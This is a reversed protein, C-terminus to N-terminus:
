NKVKDEVSINSLTKKIRLATLRAVPNPYWCEKMVKAMSHLVESAHWRNPINPRMKDICVVKKMEEISPDPQVVDYYPLQYEDYIMGMNCRRAIEWLILGFAYVDARKYADFHQANMTEDLVEPAMYRKTGVRHTSPIDVSDNKEVHRVALGLDGIACTLNTKVLINKSKLDRHAIAPKGRTGVIDMHLHALGTAISLAMSLMTKTDVTHSTLYDFLSGNEHYDTVLWLQTWTGNDKNDAAIFGLINEHRLMVTQYIEAERFWSCEERSSFIKVAVNEGRWRGRWVEGFRGKGIVHCLQIQRAISRQVLLPLGALFCSCMSLLSIRTLYQFLYLYIDQKLLGSGSGSTTMEIIDQLTNGNLIPDYVSDEPAFPRARSGQKRKQWYCWSLFVSLCAALTAGFIIAVLVWTNISEEPLYDPLTGAYNDRTNCFDEQCCQVSSESTSEHCWAPDDPPIHNEESFSLKLLENKNCFDEHCCQVNYINQKQKTTLCELPERQLDYKKDLCRYSFILAGSTEKQVSTFCYGDTECIYNNDKCIDCHCKLPRDRIKTKPKNQTTVPTVQSVLMMPLSDNLIGYPKTTTTTAAAAISSDRNTHDYESSMSNYNAVTTNDRLSINTTLPVAQVLNVGKMCLTLYLLVSMQLIFLSKAFTRMNQFIYVNKIFLNNKLLTYM